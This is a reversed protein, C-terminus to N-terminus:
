YIGPLLRATRARYSRYQEGFADILLAEEANMRGVVPMITAAALLVGAMSRFALAWGLVCLLMGLYSPHRIRRYPGTTVLRHEPQIAVLGSFRNGLVFVPWLRLVGGTTYVVVGCWRTTDGDITGWDLRDTFAPLWGILIGLAAFAALVWRNSRDERVGSSLNGATFMAAVTLVVTVVTLATLPAHAFFPRLGGWGLIALSIFAATGLAATIVLSALAHLRDPDATLVM